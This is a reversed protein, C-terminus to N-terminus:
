ALRNWLRQNGQCHMHIPQTEYHASALLRGARLLGREESSTSPEVRVADCQAMSTSNAVLLSFSGDVHINCCEPDVDGLGDKLEVANISIARNNQLLLQPSTCHEAKEALQLRAQDTHLSTGCRMVPRTLDCRKTVFDPQDRWSLHLRIHFPLLVVGGVGLRDALGDGSGVHAEHRHLGLLLLTNEYQMSRAVQQHSLARHEQIRDPCVEGLEANNRSLAGPFNSFKAHAKTIIVGESQGLDDPGREKSQRTLEVVQGGLDAVDFQLQHQPM